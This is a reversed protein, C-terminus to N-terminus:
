VICGSGATQTCKPHMTHNYGPEYVYRIWQVIRSLLNFLHKIDTLIISIQERNSYLTLLSEGPM